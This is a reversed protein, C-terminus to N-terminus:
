AEHTEFSVNCLNVYKLTKQSYDPKLVGIKVSGAFYFM